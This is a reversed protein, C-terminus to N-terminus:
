KGGALGAKAAKGPKTKVVEGAYRIGKGKYPEPKRVQRITAAIQGVQAKDIGSVVIKGDVIAFQIGAPPEVVVPHSYGVSLLLSEGQKQARYGVGVLELTKQWGDNVGHIMNDILTRTLGHLSSAFKSDDRVEVKLINDKHRVTVEPRFRYSLEGKPGVITITSGELKVQTDKPLSIPKQGIRSM